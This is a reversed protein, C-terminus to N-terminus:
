SEYIRYLIFHTLVHYKNQVVPVIGICRIAYTIFVEIDNYLLMTPYNSEQSNYVLRRLTAPLAFICYCFMVVVYTLKNYIISPYTLLSCDYFTTGWQLARVVHKVSKM